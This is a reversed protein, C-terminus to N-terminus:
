WRHYQNWWLTSSLNPCFMQAMTGFESDFEEIEVNWKETFGLTYASRFHHGLEKNEADSCAVNYIMPLKTNTKDIPIEIDHRFTLDPQQKLRMVVKDGDSTSSGGYLQHYTQSSFLHIDATDLHYALGPLYLLDGNTDVFKYMM